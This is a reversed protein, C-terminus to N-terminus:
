EMVTIVWTLANCAPCELWPVDSGIVGAYSTVSSIITSSATSTSVEQIVPSVARRTKCVPSEDDSGRPQISHPSDLVAPLRTKKIPVHGAEWKAEAAARVTFPLLKAMFMGACRHTHWVGALCMSITYWRRVNESLLMVDTSVGSVQLRFTKHWAARTVTWPPFWRGM